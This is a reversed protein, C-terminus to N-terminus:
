PAPRPMDSCLRKLAEYQEPTPRPVPFNEVDIPLDGAEVRIRLARRFAKEYGFDAINFRAKHWGKDHFYRAIFYAYVGSAARNDIYLTVGSILDPNRRSKLKYVPKGNKQHLVPLNYKQYLKDRFAIALELAKEKGYEGFYYGHRLNLRAVKVEYCNQLTSIYSMDLKAKSM